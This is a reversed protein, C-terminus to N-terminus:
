CGNADRAQEGFCTARLGIPKIGPNWRPPKGFYEACFAPVVHWLDSVGDGALISAGSLPNGTQDFIM